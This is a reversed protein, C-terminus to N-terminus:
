LFARSPAIKISAAVIIVYINYLSTYACDVVFLVATFGEPGVTGYEGPGLELGWNYGGNLWDLINGFLVSVTLDNLLNFPLLVCNKVFSLDM